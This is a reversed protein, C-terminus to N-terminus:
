HYTNRVNYIHELVYLLKVKPWFVFKPIFLQKQVHESNQDVPERTKSSYSVPYIEMTTPIRGVSKCKLCVNIKTLMLHFMSLHFSMAHIPPITESVACAIIVSALWLAQIICWILHDAVITRTQTKSHVLFEDTFLSHTPSLGVM